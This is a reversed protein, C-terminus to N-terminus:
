YLGVGQLKLDLMALSGLRVVSSLTLPTAIAHNWIYVNSWDFTTTNHQSKSAVMEEENVMCEIHVFSSDQVEKLNELGQFLNRMNTEALREKWHVMMEHSSFINRQVRLHRCITPDVVETDEYYTRNPEEDVLTM